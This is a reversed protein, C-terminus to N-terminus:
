SCYLRNVRQIDCLSMETAYGFKSHGDRAVLTPRGNKSFATNRYHMVSGYDYPTGQNLTRVKKFNHEKGKIINQTLVRIYRDRDSRKHEHNFGLAHLLEHQITGFYICGSSKLSLKQQGGTRGIFSWCGNSSHIYLYDRQRYRPVFSVCTADSFSKFARFIVSKQAASYHKALVYPVYVRGNKHKPWKCRRVVCLAANRKHLRTKHVAIDGDELLSDGDRELNKNARELLNSVSLDDQDQPPTQGQLPDSPQPKLCTLQLRSRTLQDRARRSPGRTSLSPGPGLRHDTEALTTRLPRQPPRTTPQLRNAPEPKNQDKPKNQDELPDAPGPGPRSPRM